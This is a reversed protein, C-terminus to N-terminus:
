KMCRQQKNKFEDFAKLTDKIRLIGLNNARSAQPNRLLQKQINIFLSKVYRVHAYRLFYLTNQDSIKLM